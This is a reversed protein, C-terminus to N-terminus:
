EHPPVETSRHVATLEELFTRTLTDLRAVDGALREWDAAPAAIEIQRALEALEFAGFNGTSSVLSHAAPALAAADRTRVAEHVRALRPPLEELVLTVLNRVLEPGGIERLRQVATPDMVM